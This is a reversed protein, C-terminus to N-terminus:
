YYQEGSLTKNSFGSGFADSICQKEIPIMQLEIDNKLNLLADKYGEHFKPLNFGDHKANEIEQLGFDIKEILQQM